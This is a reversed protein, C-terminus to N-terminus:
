ALVKLSSHALHPSVIRGWGFAVSVPVQTGFEECSVKLAPGVAPSPLPMAPYWTASLESPTRTQSLLTQEM